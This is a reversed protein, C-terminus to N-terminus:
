QYINRYNFRDQLKGCSASPKLGMNTHIMSKKNKLNGNWVKIKFLNIKRIM